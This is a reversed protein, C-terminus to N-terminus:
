REVLAAHRRRRLRLRLKGSGIPIAMSAAVHDYFPNYSSIGLGYTGPGDKIKRRGISLRFEDSVYDVFGVNPYFTGLGMLDPTWGTESDPLNIFSRKYLKSWIDQQFEMIGIATIPGRNLYIGGSGFTPKAYYEGLARDSIASSEAARNTYEFMPFLNFFFGAETTLVKEQAGAALTIMTALCLGMLSTRRRM